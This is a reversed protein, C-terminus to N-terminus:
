HQSISAPFNDFVCSQQGCDINYIALINELDDCFQLQIGNAHSIWQTNAFFSQVSFSQASYNQWWTRLRSDWAYGEARLLEKITFTGNSGRGKQNTIKVTIRKIEVVVPDYTTWDLLPIDIRSQLDEVFPSMNNTETLIFLYEVARTLAVYFLRREEDIVEKISSGLAFTFMLDPHLLPYSRPVADLIIVIEKELGKYKHTTSISIRERLSDPFKSRLLELFRSLHDRTNSHKERYNIYWPLSNKRSLLVVSKDHQFARNILRLIAPTFDDGPYDQQEVPLPRFNSLNAIQVKGLLKNGKRAPVGLGNMLQNSVRVISDASRYNTSIPLKTSPQFLQKFNQYFSLDSGAFGNIAQWDDGVCFIQVSPNQTRIAEILCYFLKSFDQYEDIFIYRLNKLDGNGSKRRFVTQGSAVIESARQMLGDFDEEGTEKLRELYAKYFVKALELFRKEIENICIHNAVIKALDEVSLILKRCRQIFNEMAKTFRDIARDKIRLWIEEESLRHCPIQCKELSQKLLIYFEEIGNKTLDNPCFDLLQWSDQNAWYQRKKDSMEDYDIDGKLGFYEIVVGQNDGIFITFDPRYNIGNWWFNREYKYNIDHEFLFDAIVKEGFSKVYEGRVSERPLSRRYKLMEEFSQDYGGTIIREWDKHFHATMLDRIKEWYDLDRLYDDIVTQLARSKSQEGEPENFLIDEEPHVLAYALAHFTMVHPISSQLQKTLREHIENSAKRNFALLLMENPSVGCHKQLFLARSVLTRTKGSGARAVVQVHGDVASIAAAQELDANLELNEKLWSQVYRSKEAQYEDNSLYQACNDRYFLDASLFDERFVDKLKQILSQKRAEREIEKLREREAKLKAEERKRAQEELALRREDELREAELRAEERKRALEELVLRKEDELRKTEKRQHELRERRLKEKEKQKQKLEIITQFRIPPYIINFQCVFVEKVYKVYLGNGYDVEIHLIHGQQRQVSRIKGSEFYTIGKEERGDRHQISYKVEKDFRTIRKGILLDWYKVEKDFQTIRKGTLLDWCIDIDGVINAFEQVNDIQLNNKESINEMPLKSHKEHVLQLNIDANSV